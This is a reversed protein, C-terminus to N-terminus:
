SKTKAQELNMFKGWFGDKPAKKSCRYSFGPNTTYIFSISNKRYLLYKYM